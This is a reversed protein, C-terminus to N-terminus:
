SKQELSAGLSTKGHGPRTVVRRHDACAGVSERAGNRKSLGAHGNRDIFGLRNSSASRTGELQRQGAEPMVESRRYM